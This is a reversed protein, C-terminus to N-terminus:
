GVSLSGAGMDVDIDVKNKATDYDPSLYVGGERPFRKKDIAVGVLAGETKIRAAVGSPVRLRISAAGADIEVKTFGANAPLTIETSSAGTDLRLGTVTLGELDLRADSAGTDVELELPIEGNLGFTWEFGAWQGWNWPLIVGPFGQSPLRMDLVLTDGEQKIQHDLGGGFSGDILETSSVGAGVRLRGAGFKLRVRAREAGELPLTVQEVEIPRRGRRAGLLAWVGLIIMLSPWILNWVNIGAMLGLQDLLWIGGVAIFIVGWFLTGRRM